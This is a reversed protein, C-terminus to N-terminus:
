LSSRGWVRRWDKEMEGYANRKIKATDTEKMQTCAGSITSKPLVSLV